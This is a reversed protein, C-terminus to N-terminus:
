PFNKDSSEIGSLAAKAVGVRLRPGPATAGLAVIGPPLFFHHIDHYEGNPQGVLFGDDIVSVFVVQIRDSNALNQEGSAQSM